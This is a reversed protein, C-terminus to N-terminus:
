ERVGRSLHDAEVFDFVLDLLERAAQHEAQM